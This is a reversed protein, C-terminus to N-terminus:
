QKYEGRVSAARYAELKGDAKLKALGRNFADVLEQARPSKKSILLYFDRQNITTPNAVIKDGLGLRNVQEAGVDTDELVIDLRGLELKKFNGEAEAIRQIKLKGSEELAETGYNYGIIGGVQKGALDEPGSISISKGVQQFLSTSLTIVPDSFLFHQQREEDKSWIFAGDMKGNKTEEFGRKWPMYSFETQYGEAAFVESIIQSIFGGHKLQESQYPAWEGNALKVPEAQSTIALWSLTIALVIRNLWQM